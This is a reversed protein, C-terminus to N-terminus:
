ISRDTYNPVATRDLQQTLSSRRRRCGCIASPVCVLWRASAVPHLRPAPVEITSMVSTPRVLRDRNDCLCRPARPSLQPTSPLCSVSRKGQALLLSRSSVRIADLDCSLAGAEGDLISWLVRALLLPPQGGGGALRDVRDGRPLGVPRRLLSFGTEYAGIAAVAVSECQVVGVFWCPSAQPPHPSLRM